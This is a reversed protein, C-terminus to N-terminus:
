VQSVAKHKPCQCHDGIYENFYEKGYNYLLEEGAKINRKAVIKVRKGYQWPECNPQCSHNIYRATNYRPTGDITWKGDLSFLYKGGKRNAEDETLLPGIYEIIFAGKKIPATAFLGLGAISKKVILIDSLDKAKPKQAINETGHTKAVPKQLDTKKV